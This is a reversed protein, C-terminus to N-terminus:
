CSACCPTAKLRERGAACGAEAVSRWRRIPFYELDAVQPRAVHTLPGGCERKEVSSGECGRQNTSVHKEVDGLGNWTRENGRCMSVLMLPLKLGGGDLRPEASAPGLRGFVDMRRTSVFVCFALAATKPTKKVACRAAGIAAANPPKSAASLTM